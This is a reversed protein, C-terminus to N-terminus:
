ESENQIEKKKAFEGKIYIINGIVAPLIASVFAYFLFLNMFVFDGDFAHYGAYGESWCYWPIQILFLFIIFTAVALALSSPIVL